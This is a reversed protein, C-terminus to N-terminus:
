NSRKRCWRGCSGRPGACPRVGSPCPKYVPKKLNITPPKAPSNSLVVVAARDPNVKGELNLTAVTPQQVKDATYGFSLKFIKVMGNEKLLESSDEVVEFGGVKNIPEFFNKNNKAEKGFALVYLRINHKEMEPILENKIRRSEEDLVHKEPVGDTLLIIVRSDYDGGKQKLEKISRSIGPYFYTCPAENQLSQIQQVFKERNDFESKISRRRSRSPLPSNPSCIWNKDFPIVEFSDGLDPNPQVLDHLLLTSLILLKGDDTPWGKNPRNLSLSGSVNLVVRVHTNTRAFTNSISSLLIGFAIITVLFKKM